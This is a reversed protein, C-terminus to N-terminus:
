PTEKKLSPQQHKPLSVFLRQAVVECTHRVAELCAAAEEDTAIISAVWGGELGSPLSTLHAGTSTLRARLSDREAREMLHLIPHARLAHRHRNAHRRALAARALRMVLEALVPPTPVRDPYEVTEHAEALADPTEHPQAPPRHRLAIHLDILPCTEGDEDTDCGLSFFVAVRLAPGDGADLINAVLQVDAELTTGVPKIETQGKILAASPDLARMAEFLALHTPLTAALEHTTTM